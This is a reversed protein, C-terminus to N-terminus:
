RILSCSSLRSTGRTASSSTETATLRWLERRMSGQRSHRRLAWATSTSPIKVVQNGAPDTVFVNDVSDVSIGWPGNLGTAIQQPASYSSGLFGLAVVRNNGTDAVFLDSALDIALGSPNKLGSGLIGPTKTGYSSVPVEGVYGAASSVFFVDDLADVAVASPSSIGSAVTVQNGYRSGTWPLEIISGNSATGPLAVFVNGAADVAVASPSALGAAVTVPNGGGAPVKLISNSSDDAIYVNGATDLAIGATSLGAGSLVTTRNGTFSATLQASLVSPALLAVALNFVGIASVARRAAPQLASVPTVVIECFLPWLPFTM